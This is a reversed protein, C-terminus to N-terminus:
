KKNIYTLLAIIFSGFALMMLAQFTSM